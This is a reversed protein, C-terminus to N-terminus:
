RHLYPILALEQHIIIGNESDPNRFICHKGKYIIEGSYTGYPHVGSLVNMLTTERGNEGVLAHIEGAKVKFNVNNLAKVPGFCKTINRMEPDNANM